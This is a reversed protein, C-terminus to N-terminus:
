QLNVALPTPCRYEQYAPGGAGRRVEREGFFTVLKKVAIKVEVSATERCGQMCASCYWGCAFDRKGSSDRDGGSRQSRCAVSSHTPLPSSTVLCRYMQVGASFADARATNASHFHMTIKDSM